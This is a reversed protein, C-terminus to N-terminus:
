RGRKKVLGDKEGVNEGQKGEIKDRGKGGRVKKQERRILEIGGGSRGM